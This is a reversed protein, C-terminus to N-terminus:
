IRFEIEKEEFNISSVHSMQSNNINIRNININIQQKINIRFFCKSVCALFNTLLRKDANLLCIVMRETFAGDFTM